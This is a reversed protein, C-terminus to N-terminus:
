LTRGPPTSQVACGEMWGNMGACGNHFLDIIGDNFKAYLLMIVGVFGIPLTNVSSAIAFPSFNSPVPISISPVNNLFSAIRLNDPNYSLAISFTLVPIPIYNLSNLPKLQVYASKETRTLKVYPDTPSVRNRLPASISGQIYYMKGGLMCDFVRYGAWIAHNRQEMEERVETSEKTTPMSRMDVFPYEYVDALNLFVFEVISDFWTPILTLM